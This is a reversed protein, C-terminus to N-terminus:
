RKKKNTFNVGNRVELFGKQAYNLKNNSIKQHQYGHCVINPQEQSNNSATANTIKQYVWVHVIIKCPASFTYVNYIIWGSKLVYSNYTM